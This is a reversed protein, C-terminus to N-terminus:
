KIYRGKQSRGWTYVDGSSSVVATHQQGCSLRVPRCLFEVTSEPQSCCILSIWNIKEVIEERMLSINVYIKFLILFSLVCPLLVAWYTYDEDSNDRWLIETVSQYTLVVKTCCLMFAISHKWMVDHRGYQHGLVIFHRGHQHGLGTRHSNFEKRICVSEKTGTFKCLHQGRSHFCEM